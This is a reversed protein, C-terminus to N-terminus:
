LGLIVVKTFLTNNCQLVSHNLAQDSGQGQGEVVTSLAVIWYSIMVNLPQM